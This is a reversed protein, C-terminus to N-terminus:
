TGMPVEGAAIGRRVLQKLHCVFNVLRDSEVDGDGVRVLDHDFAQALLDKPIAMLGARCPSLPSVDPQIDDVVALSPPISRGGGPVGGHHRRVMTM